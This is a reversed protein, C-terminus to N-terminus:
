VVGYLAMSSPAIYSGANSFIQIRNIAANSRWHVANLAARMKGSTTGWKLHTRSLIVKNVGALTYYPIDLTAIGFVDAPANAGPANGVSGLNIGYVEGAQAVTGVSQVDHSDYNNGTDGNVRICITPRDAIENSRLIAAIYLSTYIQPINQFDFNGAASLEVEEIKVYPLRDNVAALLSGATLVHEVVMGTAHDAAITGEAGRTLSSFTTGVIAGVIIIEDEIRIRFPALTPFTEDDVVVLSTAGSAIAGNLTTQADNSFNEM